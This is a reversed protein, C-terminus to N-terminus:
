VDGTEKGGPRRALIASLGHSSDDLRRISLYELGAQRLWARYADLLHLDGRSTRLGMRLGYLFDTLSADHRSSPITDVLVLLGGPRLAAALRQFLHAVEPGSELHCLNALFAVDFADEPLTVKRWDGPLASFRSAELGSESAATRAVELVKPRDVATVTAGSAGAALALSWVASGAGVDLISPARPLDASDRITAALQEARGAFLAGLVGVVPSYRSGDEQDMARFPEFTRAWRSLSGWFEAAKRVPVVGPQPRKTKPYAAALPPALFYHGDKEGVFGAKWLADLLRQVANEPAGSAAAIEGPTEAGRSMADAAGIDELALMAAPVAFVQTTLSALEQLVRGQPRGAAPEDGVPADASTEPGGLLSPLERARRPTSSSLPLANRVAAALDGGSAFRDDPHKALCRRVVAEMEPGIGPTTAAFGPMPAECHLAPIQRRDDADFPYMGVLGRYIVVGLSYLDARGDVPEGRWVEPAVIHPMVRLRTPRQPRCWPEGIPRASAFDILVPRDGPGLMLNGWHLDGHVWGASHLTDLASGLADVVALLLSHPLSDHRFREGLSGGPLWPGVLYSGARARHASFLSLLHPDDLQGRIKAERWLDRANTRRNSGNVLARKVAVRRQAIPDWCRLIESCVGRYVESEISLSGLRRDIASEESMSQNELLNRSTTVTAQGSSLVFKERIPEPGAM